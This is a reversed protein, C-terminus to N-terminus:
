CFFVTNSSCKTNYTCTNTSTESSYLAVKIWSPQKKTKFLKQKTNKLASQKM